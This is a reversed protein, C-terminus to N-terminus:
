TPDIVKTFLKGWNSTHNDQSQVSVSNRRTNSLASSGERKFGYQGCLTQPEMRMVLRFGLVFSSPKALLPINSFAKLSESLECNRFDM